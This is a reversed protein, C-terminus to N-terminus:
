AQNRWQSLAYAHDHTASSDRPFHELLITLSITYFFVPGVGCTTEPRHLLSADRESVSVELYFHTRVGKVEVGEKWEVLGKVDFSYEPEVTETADRVIVPLLIAVITRKEAITSIPRVSGELSGICDLVVDVKGGLKELIEEAYDPANYDVM